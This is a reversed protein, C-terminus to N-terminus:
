ETEQMAGPGVEFIRGSGPQRSLLYVSSVIDHLEVCAVPWAAPSRPEKLDREVTLASAHMGSPEPYKAM